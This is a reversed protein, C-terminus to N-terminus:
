MPKYEGQPTQDFFSFMGPGRVVTFCRATLAASSQSRRSSTRVRWPEVQRGCREAWAQTLALFLQDPRSL